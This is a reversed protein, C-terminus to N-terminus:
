PRIRPRPAAPAPPRRCPRCSRPPRRRFRWRGRGPDPAPRQAPDRHEPRAASEGPPWAGPGIRAPGARGSAAGAVAPGRLARATATGTRHDHLRRQPRAPDPDPRRDARRDLLGSRFQCIQPCGDVRHKGRSFGDTVFGDTSGTFAYMWYYGNRVPPAPTKRRWLCQGRDDRVLVNPTRTWVPCTAPSNRAAPRPTPAVVIAGGPRYETGPQLIM